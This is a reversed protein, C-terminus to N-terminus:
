KRIKKAINAVENFEEQELLKQYGLDGRRKGKERKNKRVRKIDQIASAGLTYLGTAIAMAKAVATKRGPINVSSGQIVKGISPKYGPQNGLVESADRVEGKNQKDKGGTQKLPTKAMFPSSFKTM